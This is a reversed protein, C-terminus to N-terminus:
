AVNTVIGGDVTITSPALVTGTFGGNGNIVVKSNMATNFIRLESSSNDIGIQMGALVSDLDGIAYVMATTDIELHRGANDLMYMLNPPGEKVGIQLGNGAGFPQGVFAQFSPGDYYFGPANTNNSKLYGTQAAGDIHLYIDGASQFEIIQGTDDIRLKTNNNDPQIDGMEYLGTSKNLGLMQGGGNIGVFQNGDDISIKTLGAVGDVDGIDYVGGSPHQIFDLMSGLTTKIIARYNANDLSLKLGNGVPFIDGMEYLDILQDLSLMIGNATYAQVLSSNDDIKMATGNVSQATDGMVVTGNTPQVIFWEGSTDGIEISAGVGNYRLVLGTVINDVDGLTWSFGNTPIARDNLLKGPSTIDGFDNGLVIKGTVPDISVGNEALGILSSLGERVIATLGM